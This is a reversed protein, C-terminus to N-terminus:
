LEPAFDRWYRVVVSDRDAVAKDIRPRGSWALLRAGSLEQEVPRPSQRVQRKFAIYNPPLVDQLKRKPNVYQRVFGQDGGKIYQDVSKGLEVLRSYRDVFAHYVAEMQGSQWAMIGTAALDYRQSTPHYGRLLLPESRKRAVTRKLEHLPGLVLTDLDLYIVPGGFLNPKFLEIKSWWSPWNHEMSLAEIGCQEVLEPQDTLCVFDGDWGANIQLANYIAQLHRTDYDGGSRYVTAITVKKESV